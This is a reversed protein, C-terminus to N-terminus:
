QAGAMALLDRIVEADADVQAHMAAADFGPAMGESGLLKRGEAYTQDDHNGTVDARDHLVELAVRDHRGLADGLNQLFTDMHTTPSVHGLADSWARPWIPAINAHRVHNAQPWLIADRQLRIVSDWGPTQMRMDDNWWMCWRGKALGAVANLYHHLGTYGYREPALWFSVQPARLVALEGRVGSDALANGMVEDDPDIAVIVEVLDPRDALALLQGLTEALGAPRGRSCFTVSVDPTV